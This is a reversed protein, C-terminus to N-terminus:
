EDDSREEQKRTLIGFYEKVKDLEVPEFNNRELCANFYRRDKEEETYIEHCHLHGHVNGLYGGNVCGPYVPIHTFILGNRFYAGRIDEFYELYERAKFTDHNGRILVKRGNFRSMLALATKNFAVDGLVYVVDKNHVKRNWNEEIKQHMEELSSFPRLPSGDPNIFSMIRSHGLHLDSTVFASM